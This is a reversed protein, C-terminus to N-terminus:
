ETVLRVPLDGTEAQDIEVRDTGSRVIGLRRSPARARACEVCRLRLAIAPRQFSTPFSPRTVLHGARGAVRRRSAHSPRQHERRVIALEHAAPGWNMM